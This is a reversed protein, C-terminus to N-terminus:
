QRILRYAIQALVLSPRQMSFKRPWTPRNFLVGPRDCGHVAPLKADGTEGFRKHSFATSNPTVQSCRAAFAARAYGAPGRHCLDERHSRRWRGARRSQGPLRTTIAYGALGLPMWETNCPHPSGPDAGAPPAGIPVIAASATVLAAGLYRRVSM